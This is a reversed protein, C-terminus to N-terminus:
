NSRALPGSARGLGDGVLRRVSMAVVFAVLLVEVAPAAVTYLDLQFRGFASGVSLPSPAGGGGPRATALQLLAAQGVAVWTLWWRWSVALAPLGWAVYWPLVYAGVLLYAVVGAGVVVLAGDGDHPGTERRRRWGLRGVALVGTLAVAAATGVWALVRGTADATDGVSAGTVLRHVGAWVSGGNIRGQADGLATAVAGPNAVVVGAAAIGAASLALVAARRWGQRAWVWVVLAAVPLVV